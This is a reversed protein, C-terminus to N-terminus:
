EEEDDDEEGEDEEEEEDSEEDYEEEEDEEEEDSEEDYEEDEDEEEEDSEEDYEEDEDEEEEDSEEDYEEDEDEEEEESEEDYEEEEDYGEEEDEEEEESEEDYGEEEDEEEEESEEDYGEEEDEEEEDSEEEEYEEEDYEELEEYEEPGDEEYEVIEITDFVDFDDYDDETYVVFDNRDYGKGGDIVSKKDEKWTDEYDPIPATRAIMWSDGMNLKTNIVYDYPMYCYGKDGWQEGWSNRVIFMKDVESYGVCLMAHLGHAQRGAEDPSPMPVIGKNQNCSDFGKFLAIGFIIPYGEALCQKWAKLDTPVYKTEQVKFNAAESYTDSHPKENVKKTDYPWTEETCAGLKHLSEIAYQIYSGKDQINSSARLRANYYVFLRSVEFARNKLHKKALYEYAGATANATCSSLHKQNEVKTMYPRLDVKQPLDSKKLNSSPKYNEANSSAAMYAYGKLVSKTGDKQKFEM